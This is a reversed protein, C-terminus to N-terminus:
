PTGSVCSHTVSVNTPAVLTAPSYTLSFTISNGAVSGVTFPVNLINGFWAADPHPPPARVDGLDTLYDWIGPMRALQLPISYEGPTTPAVLAFTIDSTEVYGLYGPSHKSPGIHGDDNGNHSINYSTNKQRLRYASGHYWWTTGTNGIRVTFQY